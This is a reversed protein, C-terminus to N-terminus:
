ESLGSQSGGYWGLGNSAESERRAQHNEYYIFRPRYRRGEANSECQNAQELRASRRVKLCRGNRLAHHTNLWHSGAHDCQDCQPLRVGWPGLPQSSRKRARRLKRLRAGARSSRDHTTAELDTKRSQTHVLASKEGSAKVEPEPQPYFSAGSLITNETPMNRFGVGIEPTFTSQAEFGPNCRANDTRKSEIMAWSMRDEWSAFATRRPKKIKSQIRVRKFHRVEESLSLHEWSEVTRKRKLFPGFNVSQNSFGAQGFSPQQSWYDPTAPITPLDVETVETVRCYIM